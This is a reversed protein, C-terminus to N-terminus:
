SKHNKEWEQRTSFSAPSIARQTALIGELHDYEHQVLESLDGELEATHNEGQEDTYELKIREARKVKVMLNPISLCDDWVEITEDSMWTISPNILAGNLRNSAYTSIGSPTEVDRRVFIIRSLEAIQPAAIARGFGERKRFDDLTDELDIVIRKIEDSLPNKVEVSKEWLTPNGIHLIPRTPM